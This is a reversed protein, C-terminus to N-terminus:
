FKQQPAVKYLWEKLPALLPHSLDRELHKRVRPVLSLYKSNKDRTAKRAFVGLIRINRQAGLVSYQALFDKRNYSPHLSLYYNILEGALAPNIDRRADEILSVLDYAPAGILADQFDLLGIQKIGEREELYMLNDVHFDRLTLCKEGLDILGFVKRWLYNFEERQEITTDEGNLIPLFWDLFVDAEKILLETSYQELDKPYDTEQIKTLLRIIKKYIIEEQESSTDSSLLSNVSVTGFDELVMFGNEHDQEYLKPSSFNSDLLFSGIKVFPKLSYHEPPSDMLIYSEKDSTLRSYTRFSADAPLAEVKFAKYGSKQLFAQKCSQRVTDRSSNETAATIM